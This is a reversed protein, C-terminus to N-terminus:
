IGSRSIDISTTTTAVDRIEWKATESDKAMPFDLKERGCKEEENESKKMGNENEVSKGEKGGSEM